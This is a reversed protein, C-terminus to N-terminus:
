RPRKTPTPPLKERAQSAGLWRLAVGVTLIARSHRVALAGLWPATLARRRTAARDPLMPPLLMLTLPCVILMGIGVLGGLDALTPFDLVLLALFTAVTTVQALVVSAARGARALEIAVWFPELIVVLARHEAPSISIAAVLPPTSIWPRTSDTLVSLPVAARRSPPPGMEM